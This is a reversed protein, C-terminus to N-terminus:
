KRYGEAETEIRAKAEDYNEDGCAQRINKLKGELEITKQNISSKILALKSNIGSLQSNKTQNANRMSKINNELKSMNENIKFEITNEDFAGAVLASANKTISATLLHLDKSKSELESKKVSLKARTGGQLNLMALQNQIEQGKQELESYRSKLQEINSQNSEESMTNKYSEVETELISITVALDEM